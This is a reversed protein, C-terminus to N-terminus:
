LYPRCNDRFYNYIFMCVLITGWFNLLPIFSLPKQKTTKNRKRWHQKIDKMFHVFHFFFYSVIVKIHMYTHIFYMCLRRIGEMLTTRYFDAKTEPPTVKEYSNFLSM